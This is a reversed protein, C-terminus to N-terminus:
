DLMSSLAESIAENVDKELAYATNHYKGDKGKYSPWSFFWGNKGDVAQGYIVIHGAESEITVSASLRESGDKPYVRVVIDETANEEIYEAAKKAKTNEARKAM